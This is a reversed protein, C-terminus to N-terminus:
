SLKDIFSISAHYQISYCYMDLLVQNTSQSDAVKFNKDYDKTRNQQTKTGM